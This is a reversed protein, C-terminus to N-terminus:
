LTSVPLADSEGEKAPGALAQRAFKVPDDYAWLRGVKSPEWNEVDALKELAKRYRDREEIMGTAHAPTLSLAHEVMEQVDSEKLVPYENEATWFYNRVDRLAELAADRQVIAANRLEVQKSMEAFAADRQVEVAALQQRIAAIEASHAQNIKDIDRMWAEDIEQEENETM